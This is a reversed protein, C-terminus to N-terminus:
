QNGRLDGEGCDKTKYFDRLPVPASKKPFIKACLNLSMLHLLNPNAKVARVVMREELVTLKRRRGCKEHVQLSNDNKWREYIRGVTSKGKHFQKAIELDTPISYNPISFYGIKM